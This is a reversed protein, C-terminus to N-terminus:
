NPSRTTRKVHAANAHSTVVDYADQARQNRRARRTRCPLDRRPMNAGLMDRMAPPERLRRARWYFCSFFDFLTDTPV